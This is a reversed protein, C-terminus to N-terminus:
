FIKKTLQLLKRRFLSMYIFSIFSNSAFVLCYFYSYLFSYINLNIRPMVKKSTLTFAITIFMYIIFLTLAYNIIDRERKRRDSHKRMNNILSLNSSIHQCTAVISKDDMQVPMPEIASVTTSKFGHDIFTTNNTSNAVEIRRRQRKLFTCIFIYFAATAVLNLYQWVLFVKFLAPKFNIYNVFCAFLSPWILVGGVNLHWIRIIISIAWVLILILLTKKMTFLKRWKNNYSCCVVIYRNLSLVFMHLSHSLFTIENLLGFAICLEFYSITIPM